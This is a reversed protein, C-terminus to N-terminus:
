PTCLLAGTMALAAISLPGSSTVLMAAGLTAQARAPAARVVGIDALRHARALVDQGAAALASRPTAGTLTLLGGLLAVAGCRRSAVDDARMELLTSVQQAGVSFLKLRPLVAALSRLVALLAAHRGALHAREHALVAALQERQLESVAATTVVIASPRGAVCYAAPKDSSMVVVDGEECRGVMRVAEAHERARCRMRRAMLLVRATLATPVAVGLGSFSWAAAQAAPGARGAMIDRAADLCSAVVGGSRTTHEGFEIAILIMATPWCLLVSGIATLWVAIALRPADSAHTLRRLVPPGAAM